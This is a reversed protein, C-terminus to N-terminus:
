SYFGNRDRNSLIPDKIFWEIGLKPDNWRFTFQQGYMYHRTQKYHYVTNDELVLLGNGVGPPLFLQYGNEDTLLFFQHKLFTPSDKRNDVAVNYVSGNVVNVLKSTQFDGHIGRLVNRHSVSIDDEVFDEDTVKKYSDADWLKRYFGRFDKFTQSHIILKVGGIGTSRIDLSM